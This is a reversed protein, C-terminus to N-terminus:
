LGSLFILDVPPEKCPIFVQCPKLKLLMEAKEITQILFVLM